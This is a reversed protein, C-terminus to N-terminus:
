PNLGDSILKLSLHFLWFCLGHYLWRYRLDGLSNRRGEFEGAQNLSHPYGAPTVKRFRGKKV